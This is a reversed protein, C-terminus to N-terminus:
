REILKRYLPAIGFNEIKKYSLITSEIEEYYLSSLNIQQNLIENLLETLFYMSSINGLSIEEICNKVIGEAYAIHKKLSIDITGKRVNKRQISDTKAYEKYKKNIKKPFLEVTLETAIGAYVDKIGTGNIIPGMSLSYEANTNLAINKELIRNDLVTMREAYTSKDVFERNENREIYKLIDSLKDYARHIEEDNVFYEDMLRNEAIAFRKNLIDISLINNEYFFTISSLAREAIIGSNNLHKLNVLIDSTKISLINRLDIEDKIKKLAILYVLMNQLEGFVTMEIETSSKQMEFNLIDGLIEIKNKRTNVIPALFRIYNGYENDFPNASFDVIFENVNLSGNYITSIQKNRSMIISPSFSFLRKKDLKEKEIELLAQQSRLYQIREFDKKIVIPILIKYVNQLAVTDSGCNEAANGRISVLIIGLL